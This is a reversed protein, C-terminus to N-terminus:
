RKPHLNVHDKMFPYIALLPLSAFICYVYRFEGYVPSAIMMTLWIGVVLIYPYIYKWGLRKKTIYILLAVFWFCLGISWTMNIIPFSHNSVKVLLERVKPLKSNTYLGLENNGISEMISWHENSPYWYGLTSALYSEM